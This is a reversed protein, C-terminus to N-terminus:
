LAANEAELQRKSKFPPVLIDLGLILPAIM